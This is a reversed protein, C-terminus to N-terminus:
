SIDPRYTFSTAQDKTLKMRSNIGWGSGELITSLDRRTLKYYAAIGAPIAILVSLVILAFLVTQINLSALTKTIFAFSSGIAAVAVGGGALLGISSVDKKKKDKSKADKQFLQEEA